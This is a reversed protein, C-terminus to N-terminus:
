KRKKMIFHFLNGEKRTELLLQGNEHSWREIELDATQDDSVLHIVEGISMKTMLESLKTLTAACEVGIEFMEHDPFEAFCRVHLKEISSSMKNHCNEITDLAILDEELNSANIRAVWGETYPFDNVLKPQSIIAKNIEAIRGRVPTRVVGFYKISEITGISKGKELETGVEKLKITSLRGTISALIATIGITVTKDNNSKIWVFNETDYFIGEPFICHNIKV